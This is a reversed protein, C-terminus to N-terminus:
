PTIQWFTLTPLSPPPPNLLVGPPQQLQKDNPVFSYKYVGNDNKLVVKLYFIGDTGEINNITINNPEIERSSALEYISGNVGNNFQLTMFMEYELDDSNDVLDQFWYMHFGEHVTDPQLIPDGLIFSIPSQDVPNPFGYENEQLDGIQTYIDAFTLLTNNGSYPNDFFSIRIFSNTFRVTRCFVDDFIFGIDSYMGPESETGRHEPTGNSISEPTYFNLNIRFKDILEWNGTEPVIKAPKFIVKKYDIIPNISKKIEDKVFRNEILDSNDVPFFDSGLVIDITTGSGVDDLLIKRKDVFM